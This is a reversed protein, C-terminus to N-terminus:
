GEELERLLDPFHRRTEEHGIAKGRVREKLEDHTLMRHNWIGILDDGGFYLYVFHRDQRAMYGEPLDLDVPMLAKPIRVGRM